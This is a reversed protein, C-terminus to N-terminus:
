GRLRKFEGPMKRTWNVPGLEWSDTHLFRLSKGLYPKVQAFIPDLTKAWYSNLRVWFILGTALSHNHHTPAAHLGFRVCVFHFAFASSVVGFELGAYREFRELSDFGDLLDGFIEINVRHLDGLPLFRHSLSRCADEARSGAPGFGLIKFALAGLEVGFDAL